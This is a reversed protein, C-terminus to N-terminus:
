ECLYRRKGVSKRGYEITKTPCHCICAMCHTCNDGWIPKGDTMAINNLPCLRACKGCGICNDTTRFAKSKVFLKYFLPNVVASLLKDCGNVEVNPLLKDVYIIGTMYDTRWEGKEIIRGSEKEDPVSFMAIYNEPMVIPATGMYRLGKEECLARNYKGADGIEGGCTMLFWTDNAGPFDTSKIWEEVVKPIRWAYTPTVFVLREGIEIPTHDNEKIKDNICLLDEGIADAMREAIHRSNGTGTFYLVM